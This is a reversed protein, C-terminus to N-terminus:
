RKGGQTAEIRIIGVRWDDNSASEIRMRIQRGTFRVSTPNSTSYSGYERETGNPYFRTKFKLTVNGQSEEDPILNTVKMVGDGNGLSIAGSEVFPTSTGHSYGHMEHNYINGSADAFIPNSFVGQDVGATRDLDGVLWHNERYDYAVYKDNETSGESPYFWWVEGYESNNLAYVKTIQNENINGFVYDSVECPMERAVSGDFVFFSETGMWFAADATAAVSRRGAAGCATGVREFGYVFPAGVYTAVHADTTTIILTRGRVRIACQIQGNTQLQFDGAENTADAAWVTNNERDSWAISRPNGGAGLAFLFREDTVILGMNSTPANTIQAAVTPTTADLQWEYLKGDASSCAVLYEGWTDLSWTTVEQYVGTNPRSVGYSGTSYFSGSYATNISADVDGATLGTPTIDVTTGSANTHYLKDATGSAIHSDGTNDVWSVMARSPNSYANSVRTSWGGVPRLSGGQWRVLSSDIWRNSCEFDTGNKKIGQPLALPILAM